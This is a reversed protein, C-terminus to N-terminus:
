TVKALARLVLTGQAEPLAAAGDYFTRIAACADADSAGAPHSTVERLRTSEEAPLRSLLAQFAEETADAAATPAPTQHLEALLAKAGADYWTRRATVDLRMLAPALTATTAQGRAVTACLAVDSALLTRLIGARARL